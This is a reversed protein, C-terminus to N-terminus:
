AQGFTVPPRDPTYRGGRRTNLGPLDTRVPMVMSSVGQHPEPKAFTLLLADAGDPSRGLRKIIERKEEVKLYQTHDIIRKPTVLEEALTPHGAGRTENVISVDGKLWEAGRFWIECRINQFRSRDDPRGGFKVGFVRGAGIGPRSLNEVLAIGTGDSEDIVMMAVPETELLTRLRVEQEATTLGRWRELRYNSRGRRWAVATASNGHEPAPDVGIILPWHQAVALEIGRHTRAREVDRPNIFSDFASVLFSEEATIPYEQAWKMSGDLGGDSFEQIKARRFAMQEMTCGHLRQYEVESPVVDNPKEDSLSFGPPPTEAYEPMLTWPLFVARFESDGRVASQYRSYFAGMPGNATSELVMVSGPRRPCQQMSGMAHADAHEWYAVESGHFLSVTGSRGGGPTSATASKLGGGHALQFGETHLSTTEPALGEPFNALFVHYMQVLNTCASQKHALLFARRGNPDLYMLWFFFAAIVTSMGMQRAKDLVIRIMGIEALQGLMVGVLHRQAANLVLPVVEDDKNQVMLAQRCFLPFDAKWTALLKPLPNDM